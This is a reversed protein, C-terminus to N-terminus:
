HLETSDIRLVSDFDEEIPKVSNVTVSRDESRPTSSHSISLRVGLRVVDVAKRFTRRANFNQKVGELLDVTKDDTLSKAAEVLWDHEL